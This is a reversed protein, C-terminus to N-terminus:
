ENEKVGTVEELEVDCMMAIYDIDARIKDFNNKNVIVKVNSEAQKKREIAEDFFKKANNEFM